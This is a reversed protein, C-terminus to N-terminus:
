SRTHVVLLSADSTMSQDAGTRIGLCPGVSRITRWALGLVDLFVLTFAPCLSTPRLDGVAYACTMVTLIRGFGTHWCGSLLDRSALPRTQRQSVIGALVFTAPTTTYNDVVQTGNGHLGTYTRTTSTITWKGPASAFQDLTILFTITGKKGVVVRRILVENGKVTRYDTVEGADAIAGSITFHGSGSVGGNTVDDSKLTETSKVTVKGNAPKLSSGTAPKQSSGCSSALVAVVLGTAVLPPAFRNRLFVGRQRPDGRRYLSSPAPAIHLLQQSGTFITASRATILGADATPCAPRLGIRVAHSM